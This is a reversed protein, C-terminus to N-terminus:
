NLSETIHGIANAAKVNESSNEEITVGGSSEDYSRYNYKNNIQNGDLKNMM